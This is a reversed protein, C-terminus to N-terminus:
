SCAMSLFSIACNVESIELGAGAPVTVGVGRAFVPYGLARHESLDRIRGDVITGAAGIAQARTSM